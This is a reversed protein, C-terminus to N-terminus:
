RTSNVRWEYRRHPARRTGAGRAAHRRRRTRDAARRGSLLATSMAIRIVPNRASHPSIVSIGLLVMGVPLVFNFALWIGVQRPRPGPPHQMQSGLWVLMAMPLFFAPSDRSSHGHVIQM